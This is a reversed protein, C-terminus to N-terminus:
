IYIISRRLQINGLPYYCYDLQDKFSNQLLFDIIKYALKQSQDRCIGQKYSIICFKLVSPIGHALGLNIRRTGDIQDDLFMGYKPYLDCIRFLENFVETFYKNDFNVPNYLAYYAIGLGGHLFDWNNQSFYIM